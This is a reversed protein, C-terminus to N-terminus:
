NKMFYVRPIKRLPAWLGKSTNKQGFTIFSSLVSNDKTIKVEKLFLLGSRGNHACQSHSSRLLSSKYPFQTESLHLILSRKYMSYGTSQANKMEYCATDNENKIHIKIHVMGNRNLYLEHWKMKVRIIDSEYNTNENLYADYWKQKFVLWAMKMIYAFQTVKMCAM